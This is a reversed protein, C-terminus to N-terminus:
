VVVGPLCLVGRKSFALPRLLCRVLPPVRNGLLGACVPEADRAAPPARRAPLVKLPKREKLELPLQGLVGPSTSVDRAHGSARPGSTRRPAAFAVEMEGRPRDARAPAGGALTSEALTGASDTVGPGQGEVTGGTVSGSPRLRETGTKGRRTESPM